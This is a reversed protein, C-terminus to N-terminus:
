RTVGSLAGDVIARLEGVTINIAEDRVQKGKSDLMLETTAERKVMAAGSPTFTIDFIGQSLGIIQPVGSRGTWLFLVYEENPNFKPTGTFTQLLNGVRGGPVAFSIQKVSAGKWTESVAVGCRTYLVSGRAEGACNTIKGRVIQTSQQAMQSVSLKELTAAYVNVCALALLSLFLRNMTRGVCQVETDM